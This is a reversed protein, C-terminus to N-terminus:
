VTQDGEGETDRRPRQPLFSFPAEVMWVTPNGAMSIQNWRAGYIFAGYRQRLVPLADFQRARRWAVLCDRDAPSEQLKSTQQDERVLPAGPYWGLALGRRPRRGPDPAGDRHAREPRL